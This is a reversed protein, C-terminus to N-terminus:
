LLSEGVLGLSYQGFIRRAPDLNNSQSTSSFERVRRLKSARGAVLVM